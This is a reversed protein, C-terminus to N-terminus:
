EHNWDRKLTISHPVYTLLLLMNANGAHCFRKRLFRGPAIILFAPLSAPRGGYPSQVHRLVSLVTIDPQILATAIEVAFDAL